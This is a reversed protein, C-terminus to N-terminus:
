LKVDGGEGRRREGGGKRRERNREMDKETENRKM